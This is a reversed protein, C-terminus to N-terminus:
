WIGQFQMSPLIKFLKMLESVWKSVNYNINNSHLTLKQVVTVYVVKIM